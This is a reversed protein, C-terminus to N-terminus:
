QTIGQWQTPPDSSRSSRIPPNSLSSPLSLPLILPTPPDYPQDHDAIPLLLIPPNTMANTPLVTFSCGFSCAPLIPPDTM